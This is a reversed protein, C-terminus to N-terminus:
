PLPIVGSKDIGRAMRRVVSMAANNSAAQAGFAGTGGTLNVSGLTGQSPTSPDDTSDYTAGGMLLQPRQM